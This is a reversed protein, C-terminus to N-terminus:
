AKRRRRRLSAQINQRQWSMKLRKEKILIAMIQEDSLAAVEEETMGKPFLTEERKNM